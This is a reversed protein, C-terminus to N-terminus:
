TLMSTKKITFLFINKHDPTNDSYTSNVESKARKSTNKETYMKM